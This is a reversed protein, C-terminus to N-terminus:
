PSTVTKMLAETKVEYVLMQWCMWACCSHMDSGLSITVLPDVLWVDVIRKGYGANSVLITVVKGGHDQEIERFMRNMEEVEGVDVQHISIRLKAMEANLARISDVVDKM